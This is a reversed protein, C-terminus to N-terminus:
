TSIVVKTVMSLCLFLETAICLFSITPHTINLCCAMSCLPWHPVGTWSPDKFHMVSYCNCLHVGACREDLNFRAPSPILSPIGSNQLVLKQEVHCIALLFSLVHMYSRGSSSPDTFRCQINIDCVICLCVSVPTVCTYECVVGSLRSSAQQM